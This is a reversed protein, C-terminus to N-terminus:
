DDSKRFFDRALVPYDTCIMIQDNNNLLRLEHWLGIYDRGHLEPSVICLKKKSNLIDTIDGMSFWTSDFSDLWIGVAKDMWPPLKEVESMRVFFPISEKIYSRIEPVSMDFAFWDEREYDRMIRALIKALGDAKINLALPIKPFSSVEGLLYQLTVLPEIPIDHSM